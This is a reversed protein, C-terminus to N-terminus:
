ITITTTPIPLAVCEGQMNLQTGGPCICQFSGLTKECSQTMNCILQNSMAAEVCENIDTPFYCLMIVICSLTRMVIMVICLITGTGTCHNYYCLM